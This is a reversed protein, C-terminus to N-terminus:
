AVMRPGRKGPETYKGPWLQHVSKGIRSAIYSAVRHSTAKGHIVQSVTTTHVKLDRAIKSPHNKAKRLQAIIDEPHM